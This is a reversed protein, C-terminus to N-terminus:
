FGILNLIGGFNNNLSEWSNEGNISYLKVKVGFFESFEKLFNSLNLIDHIHCAINLIKLRPNLSKSCFDMFYISNLILLIIM